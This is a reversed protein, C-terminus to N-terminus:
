KLRFSVPIALRAEIPPPPFPAAAHIAALAAQDLSEQGSSALIAVASVTGDRHVTFGIEAAGQIGARRAQSPYVLRDRIRRQIYAFNRRVYTEALATNRSAESGAGGARGPTGSVAAASAAPLAAPVLPRETEPQSEETIVFAEAPGTEPEPMAAAPVPPPPAPLPEPPAPEEPVSITILSFFAASQEPQSMGVPGTFNVTLFLVAGAHLMASVWLTIPLLRTKRKM